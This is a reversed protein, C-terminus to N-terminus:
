PDMVIEVRRNQPERVGDGTPVLNQSEGKGSITVQNAAFGQKALEAQVARARRESLALNYVDSGARDTHGDVHIVAKGNKKAYEVAETVIRAADPRVDSRDFDFFVLFKQPVAPAAPRAPAPPAPPAPPPPPAAAVAAEAKRAPAASGLKFRVGARFVRGLSDYTERATNITLFASGGPGQHVTVPDTNAINRVNLFVDADYGNDDMHAVKYTLALDFYKAGALHNTDQTPNVTTSVPCGSTCEIYSTNYVGASVGRMTLSATIPDNSWTLDAVYRWNPPGGASNTGVTDTPPNIGNNQYRKLYHTALFRLAINGSWDSNIVDLPTRYSAEIDYGRNTETVLNFPTIRIQTIVNVGNQVGRIIAPCYAQNGQFCFDVIQQATVTGIADSININYYDFSANFGPFFQPTLVVGLGTTDAKEPKLASNGVVAGQYQTNANNNFRDFVTNTNATGAAFLESLNPARIDRSRTARFRIDDIPTYTAGVKWTTVYGSTSYSTARMAANVDLSRAWVTDKALPIVTEVFGETVTYRGFNPLFNGFQWNNRLSDPDSIGFVKELRSEVGTAVSVPGAWTSFPEGTISVAYVDEEFHQIRSAQGQPSLSNGSTGGQIYNLAAQSNVGIGLLNWPVCGSNPNTLTVRCVILGQPNRVADIANTYKDRQAVGTTHESSHTVGKQFYFNWTWATDFADFRGDAGAVFRRTTRNNLTGFVGLDQNMTGILISTLKNAAIQAAVSAPFFANDPKLSINAINYTYNDVSYVSAYNWAYQVYVNINETIDYAFRTFMSQRTTPSDLSQDPSKITSKWDGGVNWISPSVLEGYNYQAPVGGPGFYIGKLPGSTIISGPTAQAIGVRTRVLQQPVSTSQGPGTGYAPNIIINAGQNIWGRNYGNLIGDSRVAEASLLVHGRDAAFPVGATLNVKWNRDDGYTTVGGSVEGKLGTFKKDLVFNVVGSLADSGYAASAGGTVIDVRSVLTQPINNVDVAGTVTSPANRQGDLLVLTRNTGINRLNITNIGATGASVTQQSTQPTAAGAMSPLTNVFDAINPTASNQIQEVGVVTLPTPAEYGDRVVRTGTVVIEEVPAQATQAAAPEAGLAPAAAVLAAVSATAMFASLYDFRFETRAGLHQTTRLTSM